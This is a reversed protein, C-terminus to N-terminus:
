DKLLITAFELANILGFGALVITTIETPLASTLSEIDTKLRIELYDQTALAIFKHLDILGTFLGSVDFEQDKELDSAAQTLMQPCEAMAKVTDNLDKTWEDEPWSNCLKIRHKGNLM